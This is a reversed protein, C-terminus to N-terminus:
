HLSVKLGARSLTVESNLDQKFRRMANDGTCHAPILEEIKINNLYDITDRIRMEGARILHFGGMLIRVNMKDSIALIHDVTNRMGSHCCGCIISIKDETELWVSMDDYLLDPNRGEKDTYFDGGTDEDGYVRPITGSVRFGPLIEVSDRCWIIRNDPLELLSKRAKEPLGNFHAKGDRRISYRDNLCEPHAYVRIGPNMELIEAINGGHDHHGHSLVLFDLNDLSLGLLKANHYLSDFEATDFLIRKGKWEILVSYGHESRFPEEARNDVLVTLSDDM